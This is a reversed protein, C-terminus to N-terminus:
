WRFMSFIKFISQYISRDKQSSNIRAVVIALKSEPRWPSFDYDGFTEVIHFGQEHLLIKLDNYTYLRYRRETAYRRVLGNHKIVDLIFIIRGLKTTASGSNFSQRSLTINKRPVSKFEKIKSYNWDEAPEPVNEIEIVLSGGAVLHRRVSRFFNKQDQLTVPVFGWPSFIAHFKKNSFQFNTSDGRVLSIKKQVALPTVAINKRAMAIMPRSIDLGTVTIRERAIPITLRGTGSALELIPSGFRKALAVWFQVDVTRDAFLADYYPAIQDWETHERM